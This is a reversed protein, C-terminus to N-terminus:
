AAGKGAGAMLLQMAEPMGIAVTLMGDSSTVTSDFTVCRETRGIGGVGGGRGGGDGSNSSSSNNNSSSSSSRIINRDSGSGGDSSSSSGGGGGVVVVPLASATLQKDDGKGTVAAETARIDHPFMIEVAALMLPLDPEVSGQQQAGCDKEEEEEEEKQQESRPSTRRLLAAKLREESAGHGHESDGVISHGISKMHRRLQHLRGTHPWLDVCTLRVGKGDGGHHANSDDVDGSAADSEPAVVRWSAVVRWESHCEKGSLATKVHGTAGPAGGEGGFHGHVIARYRKRM